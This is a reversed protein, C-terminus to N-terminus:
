RQQPYVPEIARPLDRASEITAGLATLRDSKDLTVTEFRDSKGLTVTEYVPETPPTNTITTSNSSDISHSSAAATTGANLFPLGLAIRCADISLDRARAEALADKWMSDYDWGNRYLNLAGKCIVHDSSWRTYGITQPRDGLTVSEYVPETPPTNTITTSNSSDKSDVDSARPTVASPSAVALKQAEALEEPTPDPVMWAFFLAAIVAFAFMVTATDKENSRFDYVTAQTKFLAIQL